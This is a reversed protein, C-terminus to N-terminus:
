SGSITAYSVGNGSNFLLNRENDTLVRNWLAVQQIRGNFDYQYDGDGHAENVGINVQNNINYTVSEITKEGAIHTNLYMKATSTDYDFTLLVHYWVSGQILFEDYHASDILAYDEYPIESGNGLVAQLSSDSLRFEVGYVITFDSEIQNYSEFIEQYGTFSNPKIWASITFSATPRLRAVNPLAIRSSTNNLALGINPLGNTFAAPTGAAVGDYSSVSDNLNGNLEWISVLGNNLTAFPNLVTNSSLYVKNMTVNIDDSFLNTALIEANSGNLQADFKVIVSATTNTLAYPIIQINSDNHLLLLQGSQVHYPGSKTEAMYTFKGVKSNSSYQNVVASSLAPVTIKPNYDQTAGFLNINGTITQDGHFSNSGTTAFSEINIPAANPYVISM